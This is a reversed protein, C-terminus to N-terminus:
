AVASRTHGVRADSTGAAADGGGSFIRLEDKRLMALWAGDASVPSAPAWCRSGGEEIRSAVGLVEEIGGASRVRLRSGVPSWNLACAAGEAAKPPSEPTAAQTAFAQIEELLRGDAHWHLVRVQGHCGAVALLPRSPHWATRVPRFPLHLATLPTHMVSTRSLRDIQEARV